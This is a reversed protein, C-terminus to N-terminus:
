LTHIKKKHNHYFTKEEVQINEQWKDTYIIMQLKLKAFLRMELKPYVKIYGNM